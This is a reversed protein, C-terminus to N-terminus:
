RGRYRFEIRIVSESIDFLDSEFNTLRTRILEIDKKISCIRDKILQIDSETLTTV